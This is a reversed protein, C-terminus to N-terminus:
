VLGKIDDMLIPEGRKIKRKSRSGILSFYYKPAVGYGPRISKINEESFYEGVDIDSVAYISRRFVISKEEDMTTGYRIRGIAKEANRINKVLDAFQKPDLSFAVDPTSITKNLCFHKEIISAGFSVAVIASSDEVSHDSFGIPVGFREAMDIITKLNLNQPDAPYESSCKMLVIDQNGEEFCANVAEQIEQLSCMGCSLITTKGKSAVYHILPIDVAEFSAIKIADVGLHVLFDVSTKDFATALFDIGVDHCKNMIERHWEWPLYASGYLEFLTKGKWLGEKIVFDDNDCNITLTDATYTQVKLCDAGANKAEEVLKLATTIDQGHNASMEAIIYTKNEQLYKSLSM